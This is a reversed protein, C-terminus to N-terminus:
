GRKRKRRQLVLSFCVMCSGLVCMTFCLPLVFCRVSTRISNWAHTQLKINSCLQRMFVRHYHARKQMNYGERHRHDDGNGSAAAEPNPATEEPLVADREEGAEAARLQMIDFLDAASLKSARALLRKRRRRANKLERAAKMGAARVAAREEKLRKITTDLPASTLARRRCRTPERQGGTEPEAQPQDDGGAGGAPGDTRTAM